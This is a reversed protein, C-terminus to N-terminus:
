YMGAKTPRRFASKQFGSGMNVLIESYVLGVFVVVFVVM